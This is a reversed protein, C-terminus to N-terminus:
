RLRWFVPAKIAPTEVERHTRNAEVIKGSVEGSAEGSGEGCRKKQRAEGSCAGSGQKLPAELSPQKSRCNQKSCKKTRCVPTDKNRALTAM